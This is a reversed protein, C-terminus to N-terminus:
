KKHERLSVKLMRTNSERSEMRVHQNYEWQRRECECREEFEQERLMRKHVKQAERKEREVEVKQQCKLIDM